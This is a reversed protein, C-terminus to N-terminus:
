STKTCVRASQIPTLLFTSLPRTHPLTASFASVEPHDMGMALSRSFNGTWDSEGKRKRREAVEDRELGMESLMGVMYRGFYLVLAEDDMVLLDDLSNWGNM